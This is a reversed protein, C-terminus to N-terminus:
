QAAHAAAIEDQHLRDLIRRAQIGGTDANIDMQPADPAAAIARQQAEFVAVDELFATKVQEFIMDTLKENKTDFDHAQAWFYHTTSETEPTIANLNRMNIGDVFRGEPAGTGTPTAGVSLRLFAPPTFDIFQWRDVNTTFHGARAYTPTPPQNIIWRKVLVNNPSREVKVAANEAVAANGITSEHVFALHTLDLLNDVILQWNANVHFVTGKVGWNPSELYHFDPITSADALAPDGMWIWVWRYREVVPYSRVKASPPIMEQGPVRVCRGANNFRLGHYHCQLLGGEVIKGMSLPLRRHPCRDELAVPAGNADRFLVVPENLIVRGLPKQGLEHNWAAVYWFNKLFM